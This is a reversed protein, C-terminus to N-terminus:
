KKILLDEIVLEQLESDGIEGDYFRKYSMLTSLPVEKIEAKTWSYGDYVYITSKRYDCWDEKFGNDLLWKIKSNLM